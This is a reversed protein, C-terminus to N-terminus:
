NLQIPKGKIATPGTGDITPMPSKITLSKTGEITVDMGKINISGNPSSSELTIAGMDDMTFKSGGATGNVIIEIKKGMPQKMDLNITLKGEKDEIKMGTKQKPVADTPDPTPDEMWVLKHGDRSFFGREEVKGMTVKPIAVKKSDKPNSLGGIVYPRRIDGFEFAVLVEDDPEPLLMWGGKQGMGSMMVRCWDSVYNDALWPLAIRVRGKKDPDNNDVCIAPVVGNVRPPDAAGANSAGLSALGLLSRDQRGSVTFHTLYSEHPDDQDYVHRANTVVWSGTFYDPVNEINISAGAQVFPNGKCTGQAEAFTSAMHEALSKAMATAANSNSVARDCVVYVDGNVSTPLAEKVGYDISAGTGPLLVPIPIDPIRPPLFFKNFQDSAQEGYGIDIQKTEAAAKGVIAKKQVPDWARVMVDPVQGAGTIRPRFQYLNDGGTLTPPGGPIDIIGFLKGSGAAPPKRFYLAGQLVGFDFGNEAARSSLFDWDTQNFQALADHVGSTTDIQPPGMTPMLMYKTMMQQAIDSDKMNRYVFTRKVRQLRHSKDYGRITTYTIGSNVECEISTVEGTILTPADASGAAGGQIQISTGIDIKMLALLGGSQDHLTIEFMDPLNAHTDVIVRRVAQELPPLLPIAPPINMPGIKITPIVSM